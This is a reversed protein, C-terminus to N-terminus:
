LKTADIPVNTKEKSIAVSFLAFIATPELFSIFFSFFLLVVALRVRRVRILERLVHKRWRRNRGRAFRYFGHVYDSSFPPETGFDGAFADIYVYLYICVFLFINFRARTHTHAYYGDRM